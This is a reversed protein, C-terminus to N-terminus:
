VTSLAQALDEMLDVTDELGVSLRLTGPEIGMELREEESLRQHTTTRPHTILSKSDGLNNSIDVISLANAMRFAAEQGGKVEMTIVSGGMEMQSMALDHEPHDSRGPYLVKTLKEQEALFDAVEATNRCMQRVRLDLTELSKLLVWANFPSLSPGTQRLFNHVYDNIFEEGALIAGGLCRGQGDIHKTASYVVVDAGYEMPRQLVPTAFVNDVIVRAGAAHAIDIVAKIDIIDLTPNAPTELFFTKTNPRVAAAWQDAERGDVYTYDVGFRPLLTDVIYRCSGFSARGAVVHDGANLHCLMSATVAAMGTATARGAPAGELMAMREEFMAVTPKAFRSYIFGDSEGKFRAAADEASTYVYGSTLFLGESTEGFQSRNTGGRVMQTALRWNQADPNKGAAGKKPGAPVSPATM